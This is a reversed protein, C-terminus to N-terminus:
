SIGFDFQCFVLTLFPKVSDSTNQFYCVLGPSSYLVNYINISFLFLIDITYNIAVVNYVIWFVDGFM